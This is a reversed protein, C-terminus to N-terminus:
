ATMTPRPCSYPAQSSLRLRPPTDPGSNDIQRAQPSPPPPPLTDSRGPVRTCDDPRAKPSPPPTPLPTGERGLQDPLFSVHPLPSDLRMPKKGEVVDDPKSKPSPLPNLPADGSGLQLRIVRLLLDIAKILEDPKVKPSPPPNPPPSEGGLRARVVKLTDVAEVVDVPKSKPSPPPPTPTPSSGGLTDGPEPTDKRKSDAPATTM